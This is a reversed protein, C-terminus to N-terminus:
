QIAVLEITVVVDQPLEYPNSAGPNIPLFAGAQEGAQVEAVTTLPKFGAGAIYAPSYMVATPHRTAQWEVAIGGQGLSPTGNLVHDHYVLPLPLGPHFCPDCQPHYGNVALPGLTTLGLPNIPFVVVYLPEAAALEGPNPSLNIHHINMHYVTGDAYVAVETSAGPIQWGGAQAGATSAMGGSAAFVGMAALAFVILRRM